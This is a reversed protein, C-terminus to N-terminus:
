DTHMQYIWIPGAIKFFTQMCFLAKLQKFKLQALVAQRDFGLMPLIFIYIVLKMEGLNFAEAKLKTIGHIKGSKEQVEQLFRKSRFWHKGRKFRKEIRQM